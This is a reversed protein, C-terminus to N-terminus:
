LRVDKFSKYHAMKRAWPAIRESYNLMKVTM